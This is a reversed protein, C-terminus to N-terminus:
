PLTTTFIPRNKYIVRSLSLNGVFKFEFPIQAEKIGSVYLWVGCCRNDGRKLNFIMIRNMGVISLETREFIYKNM